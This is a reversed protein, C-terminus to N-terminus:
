SLCTDNLISNLGVKGEYAGVILLNCTHQLIKYRNNVQKRVM